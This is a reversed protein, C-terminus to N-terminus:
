EFPNFDITEPITEHIIFSFNENQGQFNMSTRRWIEETM